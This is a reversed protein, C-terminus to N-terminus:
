WRHPSSWRGLTDAAFPGKYPPPPHPQSGEEPVPLAAVTSLLIMAVVALLLLLAAIAQTRITSPTKSSSAMDAKCVPILSTYIYIYLPLVM